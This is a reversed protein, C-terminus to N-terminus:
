SVVKIGKDVANKEGLLLVVEQQIGDFVLQKFTVLILKDFHSSLYKRAEAAYDVQFLEAPIVM